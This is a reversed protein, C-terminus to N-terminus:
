SINSFANLRDSIEAAVVSEAVKRRIELQLRKEYMQVERDLTLGAMKRTVAAGKLPMGSIYIFKPPASAAFANIRGRTLSFFFIYLPSTFDKQWFISIDNFEKSIYM